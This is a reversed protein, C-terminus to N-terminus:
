LLQDNSVILLSFTVSAESIIQNQSPEKMVYQISATMPTFKNKMLHRQTQQLSLSTGSSLPPSPSSPNVPCAQRGMCDTLVLLCDIGLSIFQRHDTTHTQNIM